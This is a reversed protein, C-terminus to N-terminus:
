NAKMLNLLETKAESIEINDAQVAFGKVKIQFEPMGKTTFSSGNIDTLTLQAEVPNGSPDLVVEGESNYENLTLSPNIKVEDFIPSTKQDKSLVTLDGYYFRDNAGNEYEALAKWDSNFGETGNYYVTAIKNFENYTVEHMSGDTGKIEYHLEMSVYEDTHNAATSANVLYPDKEILQAATYNEADKKGYHGDGDEDSEWNPEEIEVKINDTPTFENQVEKTQDTLFAYTAGFSVAVVAITAIIMAIKKKAKKM